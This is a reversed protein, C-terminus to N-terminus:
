EILKWNAKRRNICQDSSRNIQNSILVKVRSFAKSATYHIVTQPLVIFPTSVNMLYISNAKVPKWPHRHKENPCKSWIKYNQNMLVVTCHSTKVFIKKPISACSAINSTNICLALLLQIIPQCSHELVQTDPGTFERGPYYIEIWTGTM